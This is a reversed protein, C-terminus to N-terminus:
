RRSFLKDFYENSRFDAESTNEPMRSLRNFSNLIDEESNPSLNRPYKAEIAMQNLRKYRLYDQYEDKDKDFKSKRNVYDEPNVKVEGGLESVEEDSLQRFPNAELNRKNRIEFNLENLESNMRSKLIPDNEGKIQKNLKDRRYLLNKNTDSNINERVFFNLDDPKSKIIEEKEITKAAKNRAMDKAVEDAKKTAMQYNAELNANKSEVGLKGFGRSASGIGGALGAQLYDIESLPRDSITNNIVQGGIDIVSDIAGVILAKIVPSSLKLLKLVSTSPVLTLMINILEEKTYNSIDKDALAKAAAIDVNMQEYNSAM